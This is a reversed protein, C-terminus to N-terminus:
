KRLIKDVRDTIFQETPKTMGEPSQRSHGNDLKGAYSYNANITDNQLRTRRRANGTDVPTHKVFVELAEQPLNDLQQQFRILDATINDRIDLQHKM